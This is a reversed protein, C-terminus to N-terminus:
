SVICLSTMDSSFWILIQSLRRGNLIKIINKVFNWIWLKSRIFFKWCKNEALATSYVVLWLVRNRKDSNNTIEHNWFYVNNNVTNLNIITHCHVFPYLFPLSMFISWHLPNEANHGSPENSHGSSHVDRQPRTKFM